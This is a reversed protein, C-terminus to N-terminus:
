KNFDNGYKKGEVEVLAKQVTKGTMCHYIGCLHVKSIYGDTKTGLIRQKESDYREGCSPVILKYQKEETQENFVQFMFQFLIKLAEVDATEEEVIRRRTFEWIGEVNNWSMGAQIVAFITNNKFINELRNKTDESLQLYMKYAEDMEAYQKQYHQCFNEMKANAKELRKIKEELLSNVKKLEETEAECKARVKEIEDEARLLEPVTNKEQTGQLVSVIEETQQKLLSSLYSSIEKSKLVEVLIQKTKDGMKLVEGM